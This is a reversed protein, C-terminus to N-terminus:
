KNTGVVVLLDQILLTRVLHLVEVHILHIVLYLLLFGTNTEDNNSGARSYDAEKKLSISKNEKRKKNFPWM